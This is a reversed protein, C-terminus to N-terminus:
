TCSLYLIGKRYINVQLKLRFDAKVDVLTADQTNDHAM